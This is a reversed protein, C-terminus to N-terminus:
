YSGTTQSQMNNGAASSGAFLAGEADNLQKRKRQASAMGGLFEDQADQQTYPTGFRDGIRAEAPLVAAVQGFANQAQNQTVGMDAYKESQARGPDTLGQQLAAVGIQSSTIQKQLLSENRQGDLMYAAVDAPGAGYYQRFAEIYAPDSDNVFQMAMDARHKIEAPSKDEAIYATFDAHNDYFSAPLGASSLAQRYARETALYEGPSLPALGNKVRTDNAAFRTKYEPTQQLLYSISTSDYGQQIFQLIKPALSGLGYGDFIGTLTAYANMERNAKDAADKADQEAKAAAFPDFPPPAGTGTGTGGSPGTADKPPVLNIKGNPQVVPDYHVQTPSISQLPVGHLDAYDKQRQTLKAFPTSAILKDNAPTQPPLPPPKTAM